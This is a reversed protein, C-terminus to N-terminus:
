QGHGVVQWASLAQESGQKKVAREEKGGSMGEERRQGKKRGGDRRGGEGM